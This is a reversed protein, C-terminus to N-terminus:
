STAHVGLDDTKLTACCRLMVMVDNGAGMTTFVRDWEALLAM